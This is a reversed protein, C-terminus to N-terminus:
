VIFRISMLILSIALVIKVVGDGRKLSLKVSLASGIGNGLALASAYIWNINGSGGFILLVPLTYVLIITTKYRNVEVLSLRRFFSFTVILLIAVGAQIMGGYLGLLGLIPFFVWNFRPSFSKKEDDRIFLAFVIAVMIGAIIQPYLDDSLKVAFLAGLIAFPLTYLAFLLPEKIPKGTGRNFSVVASLAGTLIGFRITGNTVTPDIGIMLMIGIAILSGGGALANVAGGLFGAVLLILAVVIQNEFVM